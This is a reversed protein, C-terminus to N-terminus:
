RSNCFLFLILILIVILNCLNVLIRVDRSIMEPPLNDRQFMMNEKGEELETETINANLVTDMLLDVAQELHNRFVDVFYVISERQAVCQVM